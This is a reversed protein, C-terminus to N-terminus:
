HIFHSLIPGPSPSLDPASSLCGPRYRSFIFITSHLDWIRGRFATQNSVLHGARQDKNIKKNYSLVEENNFCGRIQKLIRWVFVCMRLVPFHSSLLVGSVVAALLGTDTLVSTSQGGHNRQSSYHTRTKNEEMSYRCKDPWLPLVLDPSGSNTM